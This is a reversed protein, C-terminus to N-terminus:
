LSVSLGEGSALFFSLFHPHKKKEDRECGCQRNLLVDVRNLLLTPPRAADVHCANLAVYVHCDTLTRSNIRFEHVKEILLNPSLAALDLVQIFPELRLLVPKGPM